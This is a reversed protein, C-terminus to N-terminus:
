GKSTRKRAAFEPAAYSELFGCAACRFTGIPIPEQEPRRTGTWFTERPAGAAWHSVFRSNENNDIVFGQQMPSGCKPCRHMKNAM